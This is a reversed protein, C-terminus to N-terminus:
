KVKYLVLIVESGSSRFTAPLKPKSPENILVSGFPKSTPFLRRMDFVLIEEKGFSIFTLPFMKIRLVGNALFYV